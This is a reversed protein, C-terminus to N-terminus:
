VQLQLLDNAANNSITAVCSLPCILNLEHYPFSEPHIIIYLSFMLQGLQVMKWQFIQPKLFHVFVSLMHQHIFNNLKVPTYFWGWFLHLLQWKKALFYKGKLVFLRVQSPPWYSGEDGTVVLRWSQHEAKIRITLQSERHTYEIAGSSARESTM